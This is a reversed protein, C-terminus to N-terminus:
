LRGPQELRLKVGGVVVLRVLVPVAPGVVLQRVWQLGAGWLGLSHLCVVVVVARAVLVVVVLRVVRFSLLGLRGLVLLVHPCWTPPM